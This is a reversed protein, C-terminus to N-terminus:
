LRKIDLGGSLIGLKPHFFEKAVARGRTFKRATIAPM